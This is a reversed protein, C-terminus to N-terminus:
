IIRSSINKYENIKDLLKDTVIYDQGPEIEFYQIQNNELIKKYINDINIAEDINQNRGNEEYKLRRSVYFNLTNLKKFEYLVLNKLADNNSNDYVISNLLPSDTIVVDVKGLLRNVRSHQKGFVYIQNELKKYSEEWTIDKAYETAMECDIGSVKLKVFVAACLTSKGVGPGGFFNIVITEKM